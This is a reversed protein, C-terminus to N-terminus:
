QEDTGNRDGFREFYSKAGKETHRRRVVKMGDGMSGEGLKCLMVFLDTEKTGQHLSVSMTRPQHLAPTEDLTPTNEQVVLKNNTQEMEIEFGKLIQKQENKM